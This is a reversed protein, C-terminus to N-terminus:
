FASISRGPVSTFDWRILEMSEVHGAHNWTTAEYEGARLAPYADLARVQNEANFRTSRATLTWGSSALGRQDIEGGTTLSVACGAIVDRFSSVIAAPTQRPM